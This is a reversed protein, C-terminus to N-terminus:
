SFIEGLKPHFFVENGRGSETGVTTLLTTEGKSILSFEVFSFTIGLSERHDRHIRGVFRIGDVLALLPPTVLPIRQAIPPIKVKRPSKELLKVFEHMHYRMRRHIHCIVIDVTLVGGVADGIFIHIHGKSRCFILITCIPLEYVLTYITHITERGMLASIAILPVIRDITVVAMIESVGRIAVVARHYFVALPALIADSAYSKAVFFVITEIFIDSLIPIFFEHCSQWFIHFSQFVYEEVKLCQNDTRIGM